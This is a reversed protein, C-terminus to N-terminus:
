TYLQLWFDGTLQGSPETGSAIETSTNSQQIPTYGLATTVNSSTLESRITASSKNEVNSLGINAKTINVNGNRYTTESNGKVGTVTGIVSQRAVGAWYKANNDYTEDTSPVDVGNRKGVAWAEADRSSDLANSASISAESAKTTATSASSNASTAKSSAQQSYYKANNTDEGSRSNTGGVAWSESSKASNAANTASTSAANAKSTATSAKTTAIDASAQASEMVYTYDALATGIANTLAQFEDTSTINSPNFTASTTIIYFPFSKIQSNTTTDILVIQYDGKGVVASMQSTIDVLIYGDQTITCDNFIEHTDPKTGAICAVVNSGLVYRVGNEILEIEITRVNNGDGQVTPVQVFNNNSSLDIIYHQIIPNM